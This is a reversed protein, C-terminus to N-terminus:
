RKMNEMQLDLALERNEKLLAYVKQLDDIKKSELRVKDDLISSNVKIGSNKILKNILKSKEKDIGMKLTLTQKFMNKGSPVIKEPVLGNMGIKRKGMQERLLDLMTKLKYEDEGRIEISDEKLELTSESGKFDFRGQIIKKALEVANKLEGMDIKSVLDFSAM